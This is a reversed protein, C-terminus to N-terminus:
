GNENAGRTKAPHDREKMLLYPPAHGADKLIQHLTDIPCLNMDQSCLYGSCRTMCNIRYDELVAKLCRIYEDTLDIRM